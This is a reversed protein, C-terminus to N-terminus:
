NLKKFIALLHKFCAIGRPLFFTSVGGEGGLLVRLLRALFFTSIGALSSTVFGNSTSSTLVRGSRGSLILELLCFIEASLLFLSATVFLLVDPLLDFDALNSVDM